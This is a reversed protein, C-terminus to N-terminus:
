VGFGIRKGDSNKDLAEERCFSMLTDLSTESGSLITNVTHKRAINEIQGVSFDFAEALGEAGASSLDPIMARWISARAPLDPKKFEIKYLFRRDFAHDLNQALNTTAILIGTLNEMEQLIINQITNDTRDVSRSSNNLERRKGIVADAENFLLIPATESSEVFAKYQDFLEKIRKESEGYWMSKMEAIDVEMIDRGTKRAIQYVTETKGTGPPGYFLCAFGKRMGKGALRDQILKLNDERLLSCLQEVQTREKENFVLEKEVLKTFPTLRKKNRGLRTKFDMEGLLKRKTKDTLKFADQEGFGDDCVNEIFESELLFHEGRELERRIHNKIWSSEFIDIFDHYRVENDNNNVFLHCFCILLIKDEDPIHLNKMEQSFSLQMNTDLLGYLEGTLTDLTLENNNRLNFLEQVVSFFEDITLNTHDAPKFTENRSVADRVERPVRYSINEGRTCRILHKKELGELDHMYQLTRIQNCKMDEAVESILIANDHSRNIFHAFFVAQVPSIGFKEAIAGIHDQATKYFLETLGQEKSLIVIQELHDILTGGISKEETKMNYEKAEHFQAATKAM